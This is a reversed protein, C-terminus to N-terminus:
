ITITRDVAPIIITRDEAAIVITREVPVIIVIEAGITYGSTIIEATSGDITGDGFGRLVIAAISM